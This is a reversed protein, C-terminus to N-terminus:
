AVSLEPEVERNVVEGDVLTITRDTYRTLEPDHTVILITKGQVALSRFLEVITNAAKTDLNGTPEDAVIISPDNALARAIAASQQQGTSVASPMKRAFDKLGVRDLLALAKQRRERPKYVNCYDMPLMVNELLTLQPLLQFFQFVIGLNRGRWLARQSETMGYVDVDNITVDGTTPLDIGTLMNLLTSKGSGSQGVISVFEGYRFDLNINKLATFEGAPGVYTKSVDQLVIASEERAAGLSGVLSEDLAEKEPEDWVTNTDPTEITYGHFIEGSIRGDSIDLTRDFRGKLAKDHTVMVVTKGQEVLDKFIGFITESTRSDLSGTPEDAIIVNPNNTLARAIAVRQKQGGSIHAPIKFAHEGIQVQSLLDVAHQPSAARQYTGLFDQPLLVNNVLDLMPMLEFSQYVIGMNKGRWTALQNQSLDHISISSGDPHHYTVEGSTLGSVGSLMNLLTSKGAGSRGVIGLFEGRYINFSVDKLAAFDGAGTTFVKTVNKVEFLPTANTAHMNNLM